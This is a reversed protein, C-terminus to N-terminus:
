HISNTTGLDLDSKSILRDIDLMILMETDVTAIGKIFATDITSVLAPLSSIQDNKLAIVDSVADVVIGLDQGNLNLIIVVTLADYEVAQFKFKIRLDYIPVIKGRLNTVGKIYDPTNAIATIEDYGRIEQVNLIDLCFGESGLQFTLFENSGSSINEKANTTIM